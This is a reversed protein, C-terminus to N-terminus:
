GEMGARLADKHERHWQKRARNSPLEPSREGCECHAHGTGHHARGTPDCAKGDWWLFHGALRPSPM